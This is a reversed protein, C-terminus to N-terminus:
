TEAASRGGEDGRDFPRSLEKGTARERIKKLVDMFGLREKRTEDGNNAPTMKTEKPTTNEVAVTASGNPKARYIFNLRPNSRIRDGISDDNIGLEKLLLVALFIKLRHTAEFLKSPDLLATYKSEKSLHTFYNRTDVVLKIFDKHKDSILKVINKDISNFLIGFRKRLSYQNAYQVRRTFSDMFDCPTGLPISDMVKSKINDFDTAELYDGTQRMRAYSELAQMLSLFQFRLLLDPNYYLTLFLEVVTQLGDSMEFWKTIVVKLLDPPMAQFPLIMEESRPIRPSTTPRHAFLYNAEHAYKIGPAHEIEGLDLVFERYDVSQGMAFTLFHRCRDAVERFWDLTQADRPVISIFATSSISFSRLGDPLCNLNYTTKLQTDLCQLDIDTEELPQTGIQFPHGGAALTDELAFPTSILWEELHTFSIRASRIQLDDKAAVHCGTLLTGVRYEPYHEGTSHARSSRFSNDFLCLCAGEALGYFVPIFMGPHGPGFERMEKLPWEFLVLLIEGNRYKLIGAVQRDTQDPLWWHGKIEFEDSFKFHDFKM